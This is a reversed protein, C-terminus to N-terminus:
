RAGGMQAFLHGLLLGVWVAIGPDASAWREVCGSLTVRGNTRWALWTAYAIALLAVGIIVSWTILDPRM